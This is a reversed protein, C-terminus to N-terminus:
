AECKPRIIASTVSQRMRAKIIATVNSVTECLSTAWELSSLWWSCRQIAAFGADDINEHSVELLVRLYSLRKSLYRPVPHFMFIPCSRPAAAQMDRAAAQLVNAAFQTSIPRDESPVAVTRSSMVLTANEPPWAFAHNRCSLMYESSTGPVYTLM